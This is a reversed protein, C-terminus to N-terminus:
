SIKIEQVSICDPSNKTGIIKESRYYKEDYFRYVYYNNRHFLMFKMSENYNFNNLVVQKRGSTEPFRNRYASYGHSFCLISEPFKKNMIKLDNETLNNKNIGLNSNSFKIIFNYADDELFLKNQSGCSAVLFSACLYLINKKMMEFV